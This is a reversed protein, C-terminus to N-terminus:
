LEGGNHQQGIEAEGSSSSGDSSSGSSSSGDASRELPQVPTDSGGSDATVSAATEAEQLERLLQEHRQLIQILMDLESDMFAKVARENATLQTPDRQAYAARQEDIHHTIKAKAWDVIAQLGATDLVSQWTIGGPPPYPLGALLRVWGIFEMPVRSTPPVCLDPNRSFVRRLKITTERTTEPGPRMSVLVCDHKNGPIMFGHYLFYVHNPQGYDEFVQEGAQFTWAATTVSVQKSPETADPTVVKTAHVRSGEPGQACNITDLLPVIHRQGSWWICRTDMVATAWMFREYTVFWPSTLDVGRSVAGAATLEAAGEISYQAWKSNWMALTTGRYRQASTYMDSGRLLEIEADTYMLPNSYEDLEPLLALYPWFFSQQRAVFREYILQLQLPDSHDQWLSAHLEAKLRELVPQLVSHAYASDTNIVAATPIGLYPEEAEITETAIAGTRFAGDVIAVRLKNVTCNVSTQVWENFADVRTQLDQKVEPEATAATAATTASKQQVTDSSSGAVATGEATAAATAAATTHAPTGGDVAESKKESSDVSSDGSNSSSEAKVEGAAAATDAADPGDVAAAKASGGSSSEVSDDDTAVAAPLLQLQADCHAVIDHLLLKQSRRYAVAIRSNESLTTGALLEDDQEVTTSYAQLRATAAKAVTRLRMADDDPIAGVCEQSHRAKSTCAALTSDDMSSIAIKAWTRSDLECKRAVCQQISGAYDLRLDALVKIQLATLSDASVESLTLQACDFQNRQQPVFGHYQLYISNPNDGYDEVVQQGAAFARDALVTVSNNKEVFHHQTFFGGQKDTREDPHPEYNLFCAFPILKRQGQFTLARSSVLSSAWAYAEASCDQMSLGSREALGQLAPLVAKYIAAARQKDRRAQEAFAPTELLALEEISWSAPVPVSAPLLQIYLHWRSSKGKARELMLALQLGEEASLQSLLRKESETFDNRDFLTKPTLVLDAPVHLVTDKAALAKSAIVGRGMGAIDGISVGPAVYAGNDTFWKSFQAEKSTKFLKSWWTFIASTPQPQLLLVLLPLLLPVLLLLKRSARKMAGTEIQYVHLIKVRDRASIGVTACLYQPGV